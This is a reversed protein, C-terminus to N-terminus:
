DKVLAQQHDKGIQTYRSCESLLGLPNKQDMGTGM